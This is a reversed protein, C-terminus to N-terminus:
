QLSRDTGVLYCALASFTISSKFDSVKKHIYTLKLMFPVFHLERSTKALAGDDSHVQVGPPSRQGEVLVSVAYTRTQFVHPFVSYSLLIIM